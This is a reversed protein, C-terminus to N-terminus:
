IFMCVEGMKMVIGELLVLSFLNHSSSAPFSRSVSSHSFSSYVVSDPFVVLLIFVYLIVLFEARKARSESEAPEFPLPPMGLSARTLM